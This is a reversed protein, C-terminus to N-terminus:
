WRVPRVVLFSDFVTGSEISSSIESAIKDSVSASAQYAYASVISGAPVPFLTQEFSADGNVVPLLVWGSPSRPLFWLGQCSVAITQGPTAARSAGASWSM